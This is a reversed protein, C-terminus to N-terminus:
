PTSIRSKFTRVGKEGSIHQAQDPAAFAAHSSPVSVGPCRRILCSAAERGPATEAAAPEAAATAIRSPDSMADGGRGSRRLGAPM